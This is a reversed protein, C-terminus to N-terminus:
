NVPVRVQGSRYADRRLKGDALVKLQVMAENFRAEYLQQMDAAGKVYMNAELISGYLLVNAFNDGLWSTGADVISPPYRYYHLQMDYSDDPTPGLIFSDVDFQAYYRPVGTVGQAPYAERIFNVDKNLLYKHEGDVIVALSFPALFNTPTSLYPNGATAAGTVNERVEPLQTANFVKQETARVFTPINAVLTPEDSELYDQVAQVLEAYNM